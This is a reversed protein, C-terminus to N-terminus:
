FHSLLSRVSVREDGGANAYSALRHVLGSQQSWFSVMVQFDQGADQQHTLTSALAKGDGSLWEGKTLSADAWTNFADILTQRPLKTLVSRLTVYSPIGHKLGLQKRLLPEHLRCFRHVPRYGHHGCLNAIVVLALLQELRIRRGEARRPDTLGAFADYLTM